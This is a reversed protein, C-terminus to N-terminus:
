VNEFSSVIRIKDATIGDILAIEQKTPERGESAATRYIHYLMADADQLSAVVMKKVGTNKLIDEDSLNKFRDTHNHLQSPSPEVDSSTVFEDWFETDSKLTNNKFAKIKEQHAKEELVNIPIQDHSDNGTRQPMDKGPNHNDLKTEVIEANKENARVKKLEGEITPADDRGERLPNLLMDTTVTPLKEARQSELAAESTEVTKSSLKKLNFKM